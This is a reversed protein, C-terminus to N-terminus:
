RNALQEHLARWKRLHTEKVETSDTFAAQLNQSYRKLFLAPDNLLRLYYRLSPMIGNVIVECGHTLEIRQIVNKVKAQEATSVCPEATTLLYYRKVPKDRFKEFADEVLQATIPILHKIEVAEFFNGNTDIVEIDGIGKSCLDSTTHGRLPALQKDKYRANEQVLCQYISYIALVPLRSAGAVDYNSYFHQELGLMIHSVTVERFPDTEQLLHNTDTTCNILLIFLSVLYQEPSGNHEEIDELISLFATKVQENKIKGPFDRYFPHPQEISRTLWGSEKMALRRFRSKIFPTVYKTDYTRGSYGGPFEEKHLRVDQNPDEIKKTLSTVLVTLVARLSERQEIIVNLWDIPTKGLKRLAAKGGDKKIETTAVFYCRELIQIPTNTLTM